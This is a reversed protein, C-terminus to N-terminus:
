GNIVNETVKMLFVFYIFFASVTPSPLLQFKDTVIM